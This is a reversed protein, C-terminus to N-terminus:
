CTYVAEHGLGMIGLVSPLLSPPGLATYISQLLFLDRFGQKSDNRLLGVQLGTVIGSCSDV